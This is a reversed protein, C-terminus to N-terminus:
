GAANFFGLLVSSCKEMKEENSIEKGLSKENKVKEKKEVDREWLM